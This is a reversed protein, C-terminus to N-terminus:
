MEMDENNEGIDFDIERLSDRVNEPYHSMIPDWGKYHQDRGIHVVTGLDCFGLFHPPCHTVIDQHNRILMFHAWRERLEPKVSYGGYIRPAEFGYSWCNDRIDPRHYWVCEHCFQALAGGHSYGSVIIRNYKYNDDEDWETIKNIIIDQVQKWCKLFGSHVRYQIDM